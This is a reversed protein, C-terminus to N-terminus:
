TPVHVFMIRVSEGQQYDPPAVALALYLGIALAAIGSAAVFRWARGSVRMFRAPNALYAFM